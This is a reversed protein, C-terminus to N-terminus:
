GPARPAFASAAASVATRSAGTGSALRRAERPVCTMGRDSGPVPGAGSGNYDGWADCVDGPAVYATSGAPMPRGAVWWGNQEIAPVKTITGSPARFTVYARSADAADLWPRFTCTFCFWETAGTASDRAYTRALQIFRPKNASHYADGPYTDPYDIPGISATIPNNGGADTGTLVHAPGVKFSVTSGVTHLQEVTVGSWPLVKFPRSTVEYRVPGPPTGQRRLGQVRFRYIGPPTAQPRDSPAFWSVYAEFDATWLWDYRGTVYSAADSPSGGQTQSVPFKLTVPIEGSQDAYDTWRGGQRHQVVVSPNDTFNDGGNWTFFAGDFRMIDRPHSVPGAAGGDAPLAATYGAIAAQGMRGLAAAEQDNKAVDARLKAQ